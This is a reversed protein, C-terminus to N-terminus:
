VARRHLAVSRSRRSRASIAMRVWLTARMLAASFIFTSSRRGRHRISLGAAHSSAAPTTSSQLPQSNRVARPCLPLENDSVGILWGSAQRIIRSRPAAAPMARFDATVGEASGPDGSIEGVAAREFVRLFHRHM